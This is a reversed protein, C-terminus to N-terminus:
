RGGGGALGVAIAVAAHVGDVYADVIGPIQEAAFVARLETAGTAIVVAPNVSPATIPLRALLTNNFAASAASLSLTRRRPSPLISFMIAGVILALRVGHPYMEEAPPDDDTAPPADDDKEPNSISTLPMNSPSM